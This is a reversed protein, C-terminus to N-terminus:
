LPNDMKKLAFDSPQTYGAKWLLQPLAPQSWLPASISCKCHDEQSLWVEQELSIVFRQPHCHKLTDNCKRCHCSWWPRFNAAWYDNPSLAADLSFNGSSVVTREAAAREAALLSHYRLFRDRHQSYLLSRCVSSRKWIKRVPSCVAERSVWWQRKSAQWQEWLKAPLPALM